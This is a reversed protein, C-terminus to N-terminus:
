FQLKQLELSESFSVNPLNRGEFLSFFILFRFFLAVLIASIASKACESFMVISKVYFRLSLVIPGIPLDVPPSVPPGMPPGNPLQPVLKPSRNPSWKAIPPGNPLRPVM